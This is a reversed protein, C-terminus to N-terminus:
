VTRLPEGTRPAFEVRQKPTHPRLTPSLWSNARIGHPCTPTHMPRIDNSQRSRARLNSLYGWRSINQVATTKEASWVTMWWCGLGLRMPEGVM